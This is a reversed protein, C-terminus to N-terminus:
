RTAYELYETNLNCRPNNYASEDSIFSIDVWKGQLPGDLVEVYAHVGVGMEFSRSLWIQQFRLMTGKSVITRSERRHKMGRIELDVGAALKPNNAAVQRLAQVERERTGQPDRLAEKVADVREPDHESVWYPSVPSATGESRVIIDKKLRYLGGIQYDTPFQHTVQKNKEFWRWKNVLSSPNTREGFARASQPQVPFIAAALFWPLLFTITRSIM